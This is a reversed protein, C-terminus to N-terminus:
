DDVTPADQDTVFTTNGKNDTVATLHTNASTTHQEPGDALPLIPHAEAVGPGFPVLEAGDHGGVVPMPEDLIVGQMATEVMFAAGFPSLNRDSNQEFDRELLEGM